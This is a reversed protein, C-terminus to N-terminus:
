LGCLPWNMAISPFGSDGMAQGGSSDVSVREITAALALSPVVLLILFVFLILLWRYKKM